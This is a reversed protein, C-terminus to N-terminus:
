RGQRRAREPDDHARRGAQPRDHVAPVEPEPVPLELVSLARAIGGTIGGAPDVLTGDLDFLVATRPGGSDPGSRNLADRNLASSATTM